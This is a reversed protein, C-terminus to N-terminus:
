LFYNNTGPGIIPVVANLKSADVRDLAVKNRDLMLQVQKDNLTKYNNARLVDIAKHVLPMTASNNDLPVVVIPEPTSKDNEKASATTALSPIGGVCVLLVLSSIFHPLFRATMTFVERSVAIIEAWLICHFM